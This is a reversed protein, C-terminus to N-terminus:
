KIFPQLKALTSDCNATDGNVSRLFHRYLGLMGVAEKIADAMAQQKAVIGAVSSALLNMREIEARAEDRERELREAFERAMTESVFHGAHGKANTEPTPRPDSMADIQKAAENCQSCSVTRGSFSERAEDRERELKRAFDASVHDGYPDHKGRDARFTGGM